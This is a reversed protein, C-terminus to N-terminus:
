ISGVAILCTNLKNGWPQFYNTFIVCMLSSHILLAFGCLEGIILTCQVDICWLFITYWLLNAWNLIFQLRVLMTWLTLCDWIDSLHSCEPVRWCMSSLIVYPLLDHTQMDFEIICTCLRYFLWAWLWLCLSMVNNMISSM